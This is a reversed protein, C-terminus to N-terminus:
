FPQCTPRAFGAQGDLKLILAPGFFEKQTHTQFFHFVRKTFRSPWCTKSFVVLLVISWRQTQIRDREENGKLENVQLRFPGFVCVSLQDVLRGVFWGVSCSSEDFEITFHSVM